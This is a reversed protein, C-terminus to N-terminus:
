QHLSSDRNAYLKKRVECKSMLVIVTLTMPGFDARQQPDLIEPGLSEPHRVSAM